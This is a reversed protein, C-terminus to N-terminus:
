SDPQRRLLNACCPELQQSAPVRPSSRTGNAAAPTLPRSDFPARSASIQLSSWAGVFSEHTMWGARLSDRPSASAAVSALLLVVGAGLAIGAFRIRSTTGACRSSPSAIAATAAWRSRCGSCRSVCGAYRYVLLLAATALAVRSDRPGPRCNVGDFAM